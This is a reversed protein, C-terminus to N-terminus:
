GNRKEKLLQEAYQKNSLGLRKALAVQTRTLTIKRPSKPSRAAPAVVNSAKRPESTVVDEGGSIEDAFRRKVADDIQKYYSDSNPDVGSNVLRHHVGQAFGTMEPNQGFWPNRDLWARQRDDLQSRLDQPYEPPPTQEPAPAPRFSQFRQLDSQARSLQEQAALLAESDGADYAQRFATKAAALESEARAKAQEVAFEQGQTSLKQAQQLQEYVSKAYRAAEDRERQAVQRQREAEKAEFTLKKLRKQVAESHSELDDDEPIDAPEDEARRPREDPELDDIVDIEFDDSLDVEEGDAATAEDTETAKGTQETM